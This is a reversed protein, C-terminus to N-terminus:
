LRFKGMKREFLENRKALERMKKASELKEKAM